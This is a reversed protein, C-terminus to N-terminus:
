ILNRRLVTLLERAEHPTLRKGYPDRVRVVFDGEDGTVVILYGPADPLVKEEDRDSRPAKEFADGTLMNAKLQAVSYPSSPPKPNLGIHFTRKFWGPKADEPDIYHVYYLGAETDVDLTTFGDRKAAYTLTAFARQRDLKITMVPETRLVTLSAKVSGGIAQALLSTGGEATESALTAALEDLMWKEREANVSRRPWPMDPAPKEAVPVSMHTIHIETTEPQVGQDIQLRYRDYTSLDTKFQLWSTEIIGKGIDAKSVALTNVNLFNRIRPWVEGPAANLLIWSESGVRQIKVNEQELNASLPMPRPVEYDDATPDYGFDTATIPPIPYLEGMTESKKGAPLVLPPINDAKVYDGERNRFVGEDGFFMGCGSLSVTLSAVLFALLPRKISLLPTTTITMAKIPSM